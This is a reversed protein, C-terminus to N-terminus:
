ALGASGVTEPDLSEYVGHIQHMKVTGGNFFISSVTYFRFHMAM